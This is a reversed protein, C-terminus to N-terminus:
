RKPRKIITPDVPPPTVVNFGHRLVVDNSACCARQATIITGNRGIIDIPDHKNRQADAQSSLALLAALILIRTM